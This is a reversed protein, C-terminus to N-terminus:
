EDPMLDSEHRSLAKYMKIFFAEYTSCADRKIMHFRFYFIRTNCHFVTASLIVKVELTACYVFTVLLLNKGGM